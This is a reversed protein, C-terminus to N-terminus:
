ELSIVTELEEQLQKIMSQRGIELVQLTNQHRRVQADAVRLANVLQRSKKNLSNFDYSKGEFKFSTSSKEERSEIM